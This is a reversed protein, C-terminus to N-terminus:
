KSRSKTKNFERWSRGNFFTEDNAKLPQVITRSPFWNMKGIKRRWRLVPQPHREYQKNPQKKVKRQLFNFFKVAFLSKWITEPRHINTFRIEILFRFPHFDRNMSKMAESATWTPPCKRPSLYDYFITELYVREWVYM